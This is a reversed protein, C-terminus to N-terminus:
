IYKEVLLLKKKVKSSHFLEEDWSILNKIKKRILIIVINLYLDKGYLISLSGDWLFWILPFAMM